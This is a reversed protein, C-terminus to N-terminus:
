RGSCGAALLAACGLVVAARTALGTLLGRGRERGRSMGLPIM